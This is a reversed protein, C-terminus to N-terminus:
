CGMGRRGRGPLAPRVAAAAAAAAASSASHSRLLVVPTDRRGEGPEERGEEAAEEGQGEAEDRWSIAPKPAAAAAAAAAAAPAAAVAAGADANIGGGAAGAPAAPAAAAAAAAAAAEVRAAAAPPLLPPSPAGDMEATIGGGLGAEFGGRAGVMGVLSSERGLGPAADEDLEGAFCESPPLPPLSVDVDPADSRDDAVFPSYLMAPLPRRRRGATDDSAHSMEYL